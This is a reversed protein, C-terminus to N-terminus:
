PVDKIFKGMCFLPSLPHSGVQPGVVLIVYFRQIHGPQPRHSLYSYEREGAAFNWHESVSESILM